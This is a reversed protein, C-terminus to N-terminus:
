AKIGIASKFRDISFAPNDRKLSEALMAVITDVTEISGIMTGRASRLANALLVYDKRTM